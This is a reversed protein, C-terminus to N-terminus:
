KTKRLQEEVVRGTTSYKIKGDHVELEEKQFIEEFRAYDGILLAGNDLEVSQYPLHQDFETTEFEFTETFVAPHPLAKQLVSISDESLNLSSSLGAPSVRNGDQNRLLRAASILEHRVAAESTSIAQKLALALRKTGAAGTAKFECDLFDSIWYNSLERITNIQKDVAKGEWFDSDLSEGKFIVSKYAVASKMFVREIFQISLRTQQQEEAIVGQDAPFRALFIRKVPNEEGSVIFLLGLGSRHTTVSQLRTAIFRGKDLHPTRLYDIFLSRCDNQQQGNNPRFVIEIDCEEDAKDYVSQLMQFLKGRLPVTTGSISPQEELHKGPQVLFSHIHTIPM